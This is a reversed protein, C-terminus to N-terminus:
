NRKTVTVHRTVTQKFNQLNSDLATLRIDVVMRQNPATLINGAFDKGSFPTSSTIDNIWLKAGSGSVVTRFL